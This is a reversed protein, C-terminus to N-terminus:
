LGDLCAVGMSKFLFRMGMASICMKGATRKWEKQPMHKIKSVLAASDAYCFATPLVLKGM